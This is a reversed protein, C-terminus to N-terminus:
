PVWLTLLGSPSETPTDNLWHAVSTAGFAAAGQSAISWLSFGKSEKDFKWDRVPLDKTIKKETELWAVAQKEGGIDDILRYDLAKRGSHVRGDAVRQLEEDSLNRRNKVLNKFWAYGGNVVDQLAARAEPSTAEFGNPSAKLPASKVEEMKVGVTQLIGAFNPYQIIVGISGVISGERAVIRDAGLAIIYGGSAALNDIVAVTPKKEALTRIHEYVVESGGASGGPSEISLIVAQANSKGVSELLELLKPDATGIVGKMSIRAIHPTHQSLPNVGSAAFGLGLCAIILSGFAATRWFSLKRRLFRRDALIEADIRM